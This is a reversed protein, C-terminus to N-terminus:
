ATYDHDERKVYQIEDPHVHFGSGRLFQAFAEIVDDLQEADTTVETRVEPQGEYAQVCIFTTKSM